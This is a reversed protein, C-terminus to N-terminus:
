LKQWWEELLRNFHAAHTLFPAHGAPAFTRLEAAAMRTQMARAAGVPVIADQEGHLLLVPCRIADLQARLDCDRLLALGERLAQPAPPHQRDIAQRALERYQRRNLADGHLMLTFFRALLTPSPTRAAEAFADFVDEACGHPWDARQRFCPTGAVLVLARVRTPQSLAFRMALLAGLSWGVLVLPQAKPLAEHWRDLTHMAARGHGPLDIFSAEPFAAQQAHWIQRSQGWGHVFVCAPSM